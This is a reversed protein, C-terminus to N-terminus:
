SRGRGLRALLGGFAGDLGNAYIEIAVWLSVVVLLIALAREM